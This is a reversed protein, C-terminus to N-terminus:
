KKQFIAKLTDGSQTITLISNITNKLIKMGRNKEFSHRIFNDNNLPPMGKIQMYSNKLRDVSIGTSRHQILRFGNDEFLRKISKLTYYSLHEPYYIINWKDGLIRRSISNFNPTTLYVIGGPRLLKWFSKIEEQPNNIHELVEFSTIVDFYNNELKTIEKLKGNFVEIGKLRCREISGTNYETGITNWNRKKAEELFYGDGCGVDLINNKQRYKEFADLLEQFRIITMPTLKAVPYNTYHQELELDTPIRQSFIFNCNKCEVLFANKYGNKEKLNTSSCIPCASFYDLYM